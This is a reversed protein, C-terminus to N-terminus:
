KEAKPLISLIEDDAFVISQARFEIKKNGKIIMARTFLSERNPVIGQTFRKTEGSKLDNYTVPQQATYNKGNESWTILVLGSFSKIDKERNNVINLAVRHQVIKDDKSVNAIANEKPIGYSIAQSLLRQNAKFILNNKLTNSTKSKESAIIESVLKGELEEAPVKDIANFLFSIDERSMNNDKKVNEALEVLNNVVIKKSLLPSKKEGCAFSMLVLSISVLLLKSYKNM